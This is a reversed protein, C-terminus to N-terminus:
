DKSSNKSTSNQLKASDSPVHNAASDNSTAAAMSRRSSRRPILLLAAAALSLTLWKKNSLTRHKATM